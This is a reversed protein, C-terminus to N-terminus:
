PKGGKGSEKPGDARIRKQFDTRFRLYGNFLAQVCGEDYCTWATKWWDPSEEIVVLQDVYCTAEVMMIHDPNFSSRPFGNLRRAIEGEIMAKEFFTPYHLTFLEGNYQVTFKLDDENLVKKGIRIEEKDAM